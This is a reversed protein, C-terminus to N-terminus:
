QRSEDDPEAKAGAVFLRNILDEAARADTGAETVMSKLAQSPGHLLRNILRRTVREADGGEALARAREAEFAARLAVIAPVADREARGRADDAVAARVIAWAQEAEEARRDLGALAVRELDALDYLFADDLDNIAPEVDGPLALDCIFMPKHRRRQLAARVASMTVCPDPAGLAAVLVDARDIVRDLEELTGPAANLTDAAPQARRLRRHLVTMDTVGAARLQTGLLMGMEGDGIMVVAVRELDGHIDRTLARAAGVLSAPGEGVATETRVRKACAFARQMLPDLVAGATGATRAAAHCAKVQGLVEPEGVIMSDLGSAVAFMHSVADTGTLTVMPTADDGARERLMAEATAPDGVGWVEVRDCTSVVMSESLGAGRLASLIAPGDADDVFLRDRLSIGGQTHNVGVSFVGGTPIPVTM